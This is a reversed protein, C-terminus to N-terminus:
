MKYECAMNAMKGLIALAGIRTYVQFGAYSTDDTEVDVTKHEKPTKGFMIISARPNKDTGFGIYFDKGYFNNIELEHCDDMSVDKIKAFSADKSFYKIYHKFWKKFNDFGM